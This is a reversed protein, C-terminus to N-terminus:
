GDFHHGSRRCAGPHRRCAAATRRFTRRSIQAHINRPAFQGNGFTGAGATEDKKKDWGLLNPVLAINEEITMHPILGIQQIVYGISRRLEVVNMKSVPKDDIFVEGETPNELRNIMRMLTTKGSGS